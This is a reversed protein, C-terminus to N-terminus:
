NKKKKKQRHKIMPNECLSLRMLGNHISKKRTRGRCVNLHCPFIARHDEPTLTTLAAGARTNGKQGSVEQLHVHNIQLCFALCM